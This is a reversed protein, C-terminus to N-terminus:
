LVRTLGFEVLRASAWQSRALLAVFKPYARLQRVCPRGAARTRGAACFLLATARCGRGAVRLGAHRRAPERNVSILAAERSFAIIMRRAPGVIRSPPRDAM